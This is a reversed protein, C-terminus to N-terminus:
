TSRMKKEEYEKEKEKKRGRKREEEPKLTKYIIRIVEPLRQLRNAM